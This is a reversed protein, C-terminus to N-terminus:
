KKKNTKDILSQPPKNVSMAKQTNSYQRNQEILIEKEKLIKKLDPKKKEDSM